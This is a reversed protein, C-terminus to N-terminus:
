YTRKEILKDLKMTSDFYKEEVYQEHDVVIGVEMRQIAEAAKPALFPSEEFTINLDGKAIAQLGEKTGGFSIVIINGEPGSSKGAEKIAEIAGIAMDDNEAIVVDLDPEQELFLKMVKKATERNNEGTQQGRVSWEPHKELVTMWTEARRMQEVSGIDGQLIFMKVSDDEENEEQGAADTQLDKQSAADVDDKNREDVADKSQEATVEGSQEAAAQESQGATEDKTQELDNEKVEQKERPHKELYKELWKGASKMQNGYNSGIWCEYRDTDWEDIQNHLVIVPIRAEEAEKLVEEWGNEVVPVLLIYDVEKRIMERIAKLQKEQEIGADVYIIQYGNETKFTDMFSETNASKWPTDEGGQVFGIRILYDMEDQRGSGRRTEGTFIAVLMMMCGGLLIVVAGTKLLFRGLNKM